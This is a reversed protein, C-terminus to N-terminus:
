YSLNFVQKLESLEVESLGEPTEGANLCTLLVQAGKNLIDITDFGSVPNESVALCGHKQWMIVRFGQIIKTLTSEALKESGPLAYDVLGAGKPIIVKVEPLMGHLMKNFIEEKWFRKIQSLAVLETPHTHIIVKDKLDMKRFYNHLLLHTALESTPRIDKNFGCSNLICCKLGNESIQIMCMGSKPDNAIDRFRCGSGTILIKRDRLNEYGEPRLSINTDQKNKKEDFSLCSDTVDISLNGANAEAWGKDWLMGAVNEVQLITEKLKKNVNNTKGM